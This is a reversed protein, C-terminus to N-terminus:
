PLPVTNNVIPNFAIYRELDSGLGHSIGLQQYISSFAGNNVQDHLAMYNLVVSNVLLNVNNAMPTAARAVSGGADMYGLQQHLLQDDPTGGMLTPRGGLRPPNYVLFFSGATSSNDSTWEGKGRGDNSNDIAGNSSLSGDSFVYLMLPMDLRAAYELCAGMCQGARFDKVEGEARAGGHYDYGGMEITGAGAFGNMVLKMISATKQFERASRDGATFEATDFIGTGDAVINPDLGPDIVEGGFRDAIHAAKLYGCRVAEDIDADRNVLNEVNFMKQDSLRYISEMVKTADDKSLIGVLDGTDVLNVVDSPRDVKTPSLAPDFLMMPQTSNGGSESTESGANGLISGEAGARAIGMMPNHPNNGTDNDSRAPIVAGSINAATAASVKDLIGRRFASDFHFGLGLDFNAYENGGADTLGPIQDAPLGMKEYGQTSLFDTQGGQNGVLVNSNAINAGGALDFCIFPIKGGGDTIQCPNTRLANLDQSLAANANRPNLLPAIGGVTFAAGTMFGQSLLQRRTVPRPHDAHFLPMDWNSKNRKMTM